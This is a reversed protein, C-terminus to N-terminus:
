DEPSFTSDSTQVALDARSQLLAAADGRVRAQRLDLDRVSPLEVLGRLEEVDLDGVVQVQKVATGKLFGPLRKTWSDLSEKRKWGYGLDAILLQRDPSLGLKALGKHSHVWVEYEWVPGTPPRYPESRLATLSPDPELSPDGAFTRSVAPDVASSLDRCHGDAFLALTLDRRDAHGFGAPSSRLPLTANRWWIPDGFGSFDGYADALLLTSALDPIDQLRVASQRHLIRQNPAYHMAAMGFRTKPELAPDQYPRTFLGLGDRMVAFNVPDDWPTEEDIERHPAVQAVYMQIFFSWGHLPRGDSSVTGGSPFRRHPEHYSTLAMGLQRLNSRSNQLRAADRARQAAPLILALFLLVVGAAVALELRTM